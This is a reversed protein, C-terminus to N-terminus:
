LRTANTMRDPCSCKLDRRELEKELQKLGRVIERKLSDDLEEAEAM